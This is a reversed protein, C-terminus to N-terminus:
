LEAKVRCLASKADLRNGHQDEEKEVEKYGMPHVGYMPSATDQTLEFNATGEFKGNYWNKSKEVQKLEQSKIQITDSLYNGNKDGDIDSTYVKVDKAGSAIASFEIEYDGNEDTMTTDNSYSWPDPTNIVAMGEIPQQTNKDIVKGKVVFNATPTGYEVRPEIIDCSTYLGLATLIWAVIKGYTTLVFKKM